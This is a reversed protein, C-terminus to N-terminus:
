GYSRALEMCHTDPQQFNVNSPPQQQPQPPLPPAAIGNCAFDIETTMATIKGDPYGLHNGSEDHWMQWRALAKAEEFATRGADTSMDYPCAPGAVASPCLAVSASLAFVGVSITVALKKM